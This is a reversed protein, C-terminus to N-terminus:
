PQKNAAVVSFEDKHIYLSRSRVYKGAGCLWSFVTFVTVVALLLGCSQRCRLSTLKESARGYEAHKLLLYHRFVGITWTNVACAAVLNM